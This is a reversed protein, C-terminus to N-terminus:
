FKEPNLKLEEFIRKEILPTLIQDMTLNSSFFVQKGTKKALKQALPVNISETPEKMLQCGNPMNEDYKTQMAVAMNSLLPSSGCWVHFSDSMKLVQFHVTTDLFKDSFQHIGISCEASSDSHM